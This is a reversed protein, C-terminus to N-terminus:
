IYESLLAAFFHPSGVAPLVVFTDVRCRAFLEFAPPIYYKAAGVRVGGAPTMKSQLFIKDVQVGEFDPSPYSVFAQTGVIHNGNQDIFDLKRSGIVTVKM